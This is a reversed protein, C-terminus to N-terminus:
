QHRKVVASDESIGAPYTGQMTSSNLIHCANIIATSAQDREAIDRLAASRKFSMYNIMSTIICRFGDRALAQDFMLLPAFFSRHSVICVKRGSSRYDNGTAEMSDKTMDELTEFPPRSTRSSPPPYSITSTRVESRGHAYLLMSSSTSRVYGFSNIASCDVLRSSLVTNMVVQTKLYRRSGPSSQRAPVIGSSIPSLM